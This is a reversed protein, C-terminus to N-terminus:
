GREGVRERERERMDASRSLDIGSCELRLIFFWVVVSLFKLLIVPPLRVKGEELGFTGHWHAQKHRDLKLSPERGEDVVVRGLVFLPLCAM